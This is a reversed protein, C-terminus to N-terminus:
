PARPQKEQKPGESGYVRADADSTGPKAEEEEEPHKQAQEDPLQEAPRARSPTFGKRVAEVTWLALAALLAVLLIGMVVYFAIVTKRM